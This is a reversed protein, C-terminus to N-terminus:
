QPNTNRGSNIVIQKIKENIKLRNLTELSVPMRISWNMENVSGPTNIRYDWKNMKNFLRKNIYLYEFILQISFVSSSQNTRELVKEILNPSSSVPEYYDGYIFKMFNNKEKYSDKYLNMFKWKDHDYVPLMNWLIREDYIENKWFLRNNHSNPIDFLLNKFHEYVEGTISFKRCLLEFLKEDITGAEYNWWNVFFSSDHTSIVAASNVRYQEINKFMGNDKLYRQFDMGPIGYDALVKYSCAPVTGLDEGCPLMTTSDLMANIIAKGHEEWLIENDPDFKGNMAGLEPPTDINVTWVRFLGVFHDIRYMDYFNEAFKLRQKIYEFKDNAINLWNYPPMGWKQGFAFYMDPPAGSSLELKFYNQNAWVDASERSVLFPLDGMIKINKTSAYQKIIRFQEHLQWQLWFNFDIENKHEREFEKLANEDRFKFTDEWKEWGTDNNSEKIVKYLAYNRLWYINDLIFQEFEMQEANFDLFMKKLIELKDKKINYDVREKKIKYKNRLQEIEIKYKDDDVAKLRCINLYMPELAFTSESSYPTFDFGVDNMPLLQIISMGTKSAWDIILKLDTIEGIGISSKSYVSFLPICVGARKQTGIIKWQESSPTNLFFDYNM